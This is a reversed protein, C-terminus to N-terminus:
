PRPVHDIGLAPCDSPHPPTAPPTAGGARRGDSLRNEGETQSPPTRHCSCLHFSGTCGHEADSPQHDPGAEPSHATHGTTILHWANETAEILGPTILVVLTAALVTHLARQMVALVNAHPAECATLSVMRRLRM